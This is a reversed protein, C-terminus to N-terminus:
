MFIQPEFNDNDRSLNRNYYPDGDILFRYYQRQFRMSERNFRALKDPSMEDTGRSKSEYHYLRAEPTYVILYGANRIRMCLDTDNFAVKYAEDFGGVERFVDAPIMMCAATVASLNQVTAIRNMYGAAEGDCGHFAHGAVGRIGVTVGAHQITGDAFLLKAGVAGVDQRQAFYLMQEMWDPSIVRTDNNLLLLYEGQAQKAGYNNIYSYNWDTECYLVRIRADRQELQKYCAFTEADESNNEIILIEYHSYTSLRLISDVCTQLVDIHDKNPILISVLPDGEVSAQQWSSRDKTRFMREAETSLIQQIHAITGHVDWIREILIDPLMDPEIETRLIQALMPKRICLLEGLYQQAHYTDIGFDPKCLPQDAFMEDGYILDSDGSQIQKAFAWLALPTMYIKQNTIVVYDADQEQLIQRLGDVDRVMHFTFHPYIQSSMQEEFQAKMEPAFGEGAGKESTTFACVMFNVNWRRCLRAAKRTEEETPCLPHFRHDPNKQYQRMMYNANALGFRKCTGLYHRGLHYLEKCRQVCHNNKVKM